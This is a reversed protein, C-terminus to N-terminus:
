FPKKKIIEAPAIKNEPIRPSKSSMSKKLNMIGSYKKEKVV